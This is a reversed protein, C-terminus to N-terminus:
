LVETRMPARLLTASTDSRTVSCKGPRKGTGDPQRTPQIELGDVVTASSGVAHGGEVCNQRQDCCGRFGRLRRTHRRYASSLMAASFQRLPLSPASRMVPWRRWSTMPREETPFATRSDAARSRTRAFFSAGNFCSVRYVCGSKQLVLRSVLEMESERRNRDMVRM